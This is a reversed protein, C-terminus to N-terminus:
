KYKLNQRSRATPRSFMSFLDVPETLLLHHTHAKAWQIELKGDDLLMIRWHNAALQFKFEKRILYNASKAQNTHQTKNEPEIKEM